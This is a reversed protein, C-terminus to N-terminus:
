HWQTRLAKSSAPYAQPLTLLASRRSRMPGTLATEFASLLAKPLYSTDICVRLIANVTGLDQPPANVSGKWPAVIELSVSILQTPGEETNDPTELVLLNKRSVYVPLPKNCPIPEQWSPPQFDM